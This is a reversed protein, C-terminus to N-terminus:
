GVLGGLLGMLYIDEIYLAPVRYINAIMTKVLIKVYLLILTEEGMREIYAAERPNSQFHPLPLVIM